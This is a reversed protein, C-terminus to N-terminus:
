LAKSDIQRLVDRRDQILRELDALLKEMSAIGEKMSQENAASASFDATKLALEEVSKLIKVDEEYLRGLQAEEVKNPDFLGSFGYADYKHKNSIRDITSTLNELPMLGELKGATVLAKKIQEISFKIERLKKVTHERLLKDQDRLRERGRYTELGPVKKLLNDFWQLMNDATAGTKINGDQDRDIM